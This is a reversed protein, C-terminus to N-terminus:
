YKGRFYSHCSVSRAYKPFKNNFGELAGVEENFWYRRKMEKGYFHKFFNGYSEFESICYMSSHDRSKIYAEDWRLNHRKETIDKFHKLKQKNYLMYHCVFSKRSDYDFGMLERYAKRYPFHYEDSYDFFTKGNHMFVRPKVYITDSDLVLYNDVSSFKDYGLKLMQQLFHGKPCTLEDPLQNKGYGLITTEDIFVYGNEDCFNRYMEDERTVIVIRSIPHKVYKKASEISMQLIEFDKDITIFVLDIPINSVTKADFSDYSETYYICYRKLKFLMAKIKRYYLGFFTQSFFVRVAFCKKAFVSLLGATSNNSFSHKNM